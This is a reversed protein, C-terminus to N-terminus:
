GSSWRYGNRPPEQTFLSCSEKSASPDTSSGFNSFSVMAMVPEVGFMKVTKATMIAIKALDDATPDINIATDSLFMPGRKTLMMNTTAVISAGPAKGILQLMPKVVSSYSRTYGTVLGDAEGENVMMAAFYNRERMLKQADLLSIGRREPKGISLDIEENTKRLFKTDIIEVEAEFGM